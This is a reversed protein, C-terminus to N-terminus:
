KLSDVKNLYKTLENKKNEIEANIAQIYEDYERQKVANELNVQKIKKDYELKLAFNAAEVEDIYKNYAEEAKKDTRAKRAYVEYEEQKNTESQAYFLAAALLIGAVFIALLMPALGFYISAFLGMGLIIFEIVMLSAYFTIGPPSGPTPAMGAVQKSRPAEKKVYKINPPGVAINPNVLKPPKAARKTQELSEIDKQLRIVALESATKETSGPKNKVEDAVLALSVIGGSRKVFQEMGCYSCAFRDIDNAVELKGGCAPCTLSVFDPM